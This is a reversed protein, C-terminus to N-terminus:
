HTLQITGAETYAQTNTGPVVLHITDFASSKVVLITAMDRQMNRLGEDNVLASDRVQYFVADGTSTMKIDDAYVELSKGHGNTVVYKNRATM